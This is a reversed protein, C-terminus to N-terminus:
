LKDTFCKKMVFDRLNGLDRLSCRLKSKDSQEVFAAFREQLDLPPIPVCLGLIDSNSINAQRIGRSIGTLKSKIAGFKLLEMLYRKDITPFVSISILWFM